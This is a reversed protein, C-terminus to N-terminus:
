AAVETTYGPTSLCGKSLSSGHAGFPARVTRLPSPAPLRTRSGSWSWNRTDTGIREPHFVVACGGRRACRQLMRRGLPRGQALSGVGVRDATAAPRLWAGKESCVVGPRVEDHNFRCICRASTTGCRVWAGDVLGRKAADPHMDLAPTADNAAFGGFTSTTRKDSAPSILTLPLTLGGAPLHGPAAGYRTGLTTSEARNQWQHKRCCTGSCSRNTGGFEM